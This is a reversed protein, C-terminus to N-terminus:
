EREPLSSGTPIACGMRETEVGESLMSSKNFGGGPDGKSGVVSSSQAPGTSSPAHGTAGSSSLSWEECSSTVRKLLNVLSLRDQGRTPGSSLSSSPQRCPPCCSGDLQSGRFVSQCTKTVCLVTSESATRSARSAGRCEAPRWAVAEQRKM